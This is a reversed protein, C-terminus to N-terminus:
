LAYSSSSVMLVVILPLVVVAVVSSQHTEPTPTTFLTVPAPELATVVSSVLNLAYTQLLAVAQVQNVKWGHRIQEPGVLGVGQTSARRVSPPMDSSSRQMSGLCGQSRWVCSNVHRMHAKPILTKTCAALTLNPSPNSAAFVM